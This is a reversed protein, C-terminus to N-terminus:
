QRPPRGGFFEVSEIEYEGAVSSSLMLTQVTVEDVDAYLFGDEWTYGSLVQPLESVTLPASIDPGNLIGTVLDDASKIGVFGIQKKM